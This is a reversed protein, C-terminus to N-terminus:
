LQAKRTLFRTDSQHPDHCVSCKGDALAERGGKHNAVELDSHCTRCLDVERGRLHNPGSGGHPDHCSM